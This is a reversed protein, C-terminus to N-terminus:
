ITHEDLDALGLREYKKVIEPKRGIELFLFSLANSTTEQGAIFLTMFDDLLDEYTLEPMADKFCSFM